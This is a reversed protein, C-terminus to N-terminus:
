SIHLTPINDQSSIMYVDGVTVVKELCSTFMCCAKQVKAELESGWEQCITRKLSDVNHHTTANVKAQMIGWIRYELPKMDPLYLLKVENSWYGMMHGGSM